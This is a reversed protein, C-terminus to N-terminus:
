QSARVFPCKTIFDPCCDGRNLCGQDCWCNGEHHKNGCLDECTGVTRTPAIIPSPRTVFSTTRTPIPSALTPSVLTTTPTRQILSAYPGRGYKAANWKAAEIYAPDDKSYTPGDALPQGAVAILSLVGIFLKM